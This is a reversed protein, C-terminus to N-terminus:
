ANTNWIDVNWKWRGDEQKWYVVYKAEFSSASQGEPQIGIVAEGIEVVADGAPLVDVSRLVASSANLSEVVGKWFSKIAERGAIM